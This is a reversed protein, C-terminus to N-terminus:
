KAKRRVKNVLERGSVTLEPKLSLPVCGHNTRMKEDVWRGRVWTGRVLTGRVLTGRMWIVRVM